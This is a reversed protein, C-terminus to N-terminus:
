GGLILETPFPHSFLLSFVLYAAVDFLIIGTVIRLFRREGGLYAMAPILIISSTLFGIINSLAIFIAFMVLGILGKLLPAEDSHVVLERMGFLSFASLVILAIGVVVPFYSSEAVQQNGDWVMVAGFVAVSLTATIREWLHVQREPDKSSMVAM